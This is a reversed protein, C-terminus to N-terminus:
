QNASQRALAEADTIDSQMNQVPKQPTEITLADEYDLGPDRDRWNRQIITGEGTFDDGQRAAEWGRTNGYPGFLSTAQSIEGAQGNQGFAYDPGMADAKQWEAYGTAGQVLGTQAAGLAFTSFTMVQPAKYAAVSAGEAIEGAKVLGLARGAGRFAMGGVGGVMPFLAYGAINTAAQKFTHGQAWADVAENAGGGALSVAGMRGTRALMSVLQASRAGTTAATTEAAMTAGAATSEATVAATGEVAGTALATGEVAAGTTAGIGGVAAMIPTSAFMFAGLAGGSAGQKLDAYVNVKESVAGTEHLVAHTGLYAGAGAVAGAGVSLGFAGMLGVTTGGAVLAAGPGTWLTALGAVGGAVIATGYAVKRWNRDWWSPEQAGKELSTYFSDKGDVKEAALDPDDKKVEALKARASDRKDEAIDLGADYLKVVNVLHKAATADADLVEKQKAILLAERDLEQKEINKADDTLYTKSAFDKKRQDLQKQAEELGKQGDAIESQKKVSAAKLNDMLEQAGGKGVIQGNNMKTTFDDLMNKIDNPKVNSSNTMQDELKDLDVFSSKNHILKTPDNPDRQYMVEPLESKVRLVLGQADGFKGQDALFQAYQLRATNGMVASNAMDSVVHPDRQSNVFRPDRLLQAIAATNTTDALTVADKLLKEQQVKDGKAGAATADKLDKNITEVKHSSSELKPLITGVAEVYLRSNRLDKNSGAESLLQVADLVDKQSAKLGGNSDRKMGSEPDTLGAGKFSAYLMRTYAPANEALKYTDYKNQLQALQDLKTAVASDTTGKRAEAITDKNVKTPDLGLEKALNNRENRSNQVLLAVDKQNINNAHGVATACEVDVVKKLEAVRESIKETKPKGDAGKVTIVDNENRNGKVYSAIENAAMQAATLHGFSESSTKEVTEKIKDLNRDGKEAPKESKDATQATATDGVKPYSDAHLKATHSDAPAAPHGAAPQDAAKHADDTKPGEVM